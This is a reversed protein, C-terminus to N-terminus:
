NEVSGFKLPIRCEMGNEKTCGYKSHQLRAHPPVYNLEMRTGRTFFFCFRSIRIILLALKQLWVFENNMRIFLSHIKHIIFLYLPVKRPTAIQFLKIIKQGDM